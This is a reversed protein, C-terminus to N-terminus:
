LLGLKELRSRIAGRGRQFGDMLENISKGQTHEKRLRADEEETWKAYAKPYERRIKEINYAKSKTTHKSINLIEVGVVQKNEDFDFIIGPVVEQSDVIKSDDLRLYLTDAKQDIELRM